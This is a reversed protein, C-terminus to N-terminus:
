GKFNSFQDTMDQITKKLSQDKEIFNLSWPSVGM